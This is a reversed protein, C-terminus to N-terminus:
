SPCGQILENFADTIETLHDNLVQDESPGSIEDAEQPEPFAFNELESAWFELEDAKEDWEANGSTGWEESAERYEDAVETAAEALTSLIMRVDDEEPPEGGMVLRDFEEEAAETAALVTAMKGTAVDSPKFNCKGCRVLKTGRYGPTCHKYPEGALVKVGCSGCVGPSKRAAQVTIVKAM